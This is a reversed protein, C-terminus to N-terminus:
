TEQPAKQTILDLSTAITLKDDGPIYKMVENDRYALAGILLRGKAKWHSWWYESFERITSTSGSSLNYVRTTQDVSYRPNCRLLFANAVLEVPAFDRIQEGETMPFDIGSMAAKRLSPWLRSELEGEGFVHFIRLIELYVKKEEAWQLFAISAAAKSAAYSNTPRLPSSSPIEALNQGTRGYEFCSGAVIYHKIGAIYAQEFLTLVAMLNWQLCNALTDYPVNGTHSALHVLVDCGLLESARVDDLQRDLWDPQKDLPIRPRSEPSRRLALVSHGAALAQRLFHSGIFGTAGTLFIKM